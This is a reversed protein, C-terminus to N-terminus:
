LNTQVPYRWTFWVDQIKVGIRIERRGIKRKGGVRIGGGGWCRVATTETATVLAASAYKNCSIWGDWGRCTVWCNGRCIQRCIVRGIVVVLTKGRTPWCGCSYWCDTTIVIAIRWAVYRCDRCRCYSSSSRVIVIMAMMVLVEQLLTAPVGVTAGITAM